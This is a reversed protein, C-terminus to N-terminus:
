CNLEITLDGIAEYFCSFYKSRAKEAESIRMAISKYLKKDKPLPVLINEITEPTIEDIVSGFVGQALVAQCQPTKLFALLYYPDIKENPIIRIVHDSVAFGDWHAPVSSVVGTTGSRTILIWGEKVALQKLKPDDHRLWKDTHDIMQTINTGGLFPVAQEYREVYSRKFRGPFFVREVLSSLPVMEFKEQNIKDIKNSHEPSHFAANLRLLEDSLITTSTTIYGHEYNDPDLGKEKYEQFAATIEPFDTLIENTEKGDVGKKFVPNGRRDHGIWKPCAMFINYACIDKISALPKALKKIILLCTKTGTHPQFTQSPLDIVAIIQTNKLIWNRVFYTQPGSLIQYPLVIALFGDDKLIDINREVFLIDPARKFLKTSQTQLNNCNSNSLRALQYQSLIKDDQISIKAGFPPNTAAKSYKRDVAKKDLSNAQWIFIDDSSGTRSSLTANGLSVVSEDIEYGHLTKKAYNTIYKEDKGKRNAINKIKNLGALLFGGTGSCLDILEDGHEPNFDIMSIALSTVRQHTFFQGGEQKAWQSRFLELSDGFVDKSPDSIYINNLKGVIYSINIDNFIIKDDYLTWKDNMKEYTNRVFTAVKISFETEKGQLQKLEKDSYSFGPIQGLHEELFMGIHLIKGVEKCTVAPIRISSNTYAYDFIDLITKQIDSTYM